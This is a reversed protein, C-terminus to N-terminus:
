KGTAPIRKISMHIFQGTHRTSFLTYRAGDNLCFLSSQETYYLIEVADKKNEVNNPEEPCWLDSTLSFAPFCVYHYESWLSQRHPTLHPHSWAHQLQHM